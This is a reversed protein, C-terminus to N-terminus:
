RAQKDTQARAQKVSWIARELTSAARGTMAAAQKKASTIENKKDEHTLTKKEAM